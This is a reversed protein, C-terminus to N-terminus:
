NPTGPTSDSPPRPTPCSPSRVPAAPRPGPRGCRRGARCRRGAVACPQARVAAAPNASADRRPTGCRPPARAPAARRSRPAYRGRPPAHDVEEASRGVISRRGSEGVPEEIEILYDIDDESGDALEALADARVEGDEDSGDDVEDDAQGDPDDDAGALLDPLETLELLQADEDDGLPLPLEPVATIAEPDESLATFFRDLLRRAAQDVAKGDLEAIRGEGTFGADARVVTSVPGDEELRLRLTGVVGGDGVSQRGTLQFFLEDPDDLARVEGRYTITAGGVRLKLRGALLTGEPATREPTFGQLCRALLEPRGLSERLAGPVASGSGLAGHDPLRGMRVGPVGTFRRPDGRTLASAALHHRPSGARSAAAPSRRAAAAHGATGPRGAAPGVRPQRRVPGPRLARRLRRQATRPACPATRTVTAPPPPTEPTSSSAAARHSCAPCWDTSSRATSSAARTRPRTPCSHSWWTTPATSARPPACGTSPTPRRPACGPDDLARRNLATLRRDTRALQLVAPDSEVVTVHETRPDALLSAAVTGDGGGLVLVRLRRGTLRSLAPGLLADLYRPRDASCLRLQGDLYLRLPRGSGARDAAGARDDGGSLVIEQYGSQRSALVSSGYLSTRAAREFAGSLAWALSLALVVTGSLMCLLLRTRAPPEAGFLWLAVLTGACANVTGTLLAGDLQGVTPLLM